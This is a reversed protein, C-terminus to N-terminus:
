SEQALRSVVAVQVIRCSTKNLPEYPIYVTITLFFCKRVKCMSEVLLDELKERLYFRVAVFPLCIISFLFDTMAQFFLLPSTSHKKVSPRKLIVVMTIFNVITGLISCVIAGGFAINSLDANIIIM